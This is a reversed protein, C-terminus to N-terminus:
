GLLQTVRRGVLLASVHGVDPKQALRAELEGVAIRTHDDVGEQRGIIRDRGDRGVIEIRGVHEHGVAVGVVEGVDHRHRRLVVRRGDRDHLEGLPEALLPDRVGETRAEPPVTSNSHPQALITCANWVFV